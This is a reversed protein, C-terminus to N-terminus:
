RASMLHNQSNSKSSGFLGDLLAGVAWGAIALVPVKVALEKCKFVNAFKAGKLMKSIGSVLPISVGAAVGLKKFSNSKPTTNDLVPQGLETGNNQPYAIQPNDQLPQSYAMPNMVDNQAQNDVISYPNASGTFSTQGNNNPYPFISGTQNFMPNQNVYQSYCIDDSYNNVPTMQGVGTNFLSGNMGMNNPMMPMMPMNFNQYGMNQYNNYYTSDGVMSNAVM